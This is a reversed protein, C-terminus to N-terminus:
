SAAIAKNNVRAALAVTQGLSTALVSARAPFGSITASFQRISIGITCAATSWNTACPRM